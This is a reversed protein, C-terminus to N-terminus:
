NESKTYCGKGSPKPDIRIQGTQNLVIAQAFEKKGQPCYTFTGTQGNTMGYDNFEIYNDKNLSSNWVLTDNKNLAPFVRLVRDKETIIIQGDRWNGGCTAHDGSACLRVLMRNKIAESRTFNLEAILNNVVTVGQNNLLLNQLHPATILLLLSILSVVIMLELISFAAIECDICSRVYSTKWNSM